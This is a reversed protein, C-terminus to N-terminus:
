IRKQFKNRLLVATANMLLLVVLLVIIGAAAIDHFEKQPRSIWNYIQIPLIVFRSRLGDPLTAVFTLAGIMLQSATEGIARSLALITGTLIGPFALPLIQEWLVQWRNAGLAFGAQRLSDPVTRLAERTSVIIIPLVMLSLTLGGALISRGGTIPEMIRVFVQLGLLGYIISPVGALNNINVEIFQLVFSEVKEAFQELGYRWSATPFFWLCLLKTVKAFLKDQSFEELYIGSGIGIPFSVAAVVGLIWLSGFLASILGAKEPRRSPFSTLFNWNLSSLGDSFVDYLLVLLVMLAIAIATWTLSAFLVDLRYRGALNARFLGENRTPPNPLNSASNM